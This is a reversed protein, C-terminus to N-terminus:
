KMAKVRRSSNLIFPLHIRPSIWDGAVLIVGPCDWKKTKILSFSNPISPLHTSPWNLAGVVLLSSATVDPYESFQYLTVRNLTILSELSHCGGMPVILHMLKWSPAGQHITQSLTGAASKSMFMVVGASCEVGAVM